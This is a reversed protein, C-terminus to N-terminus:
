QVKSRITPVIKKTILDEVVATICDESAMAEDRPSASATVQAGGNLFGFMSKDPYSAILM